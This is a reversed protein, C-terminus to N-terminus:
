KIQEFLDLITRAIKTSAETELYSSRARWTEYGGLRHQEPTPLYGNYGNALEITFTPQLPSKRKLELGIEVFVECPIAAIGLDGIRLTQLIIPVERPYESLLVTERAYIDSTWPILQGNRREAKELQLQAKAFPAHRKGSFSAALIGAAPKIFFNAAIGLWFRDAMFVGKRLVGGCGIREFRCQRAQRLHDRPPQSLM